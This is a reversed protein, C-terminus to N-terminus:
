LSSILRTAEADHEVVGTRTPRAANGSGTTEDTGYVFRDLARRLRCLDANSAPEPFGHWRLAACVDSMLRHTIRGTGGTPRPMPYAPNAM